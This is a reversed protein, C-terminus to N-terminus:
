VKGVRLPTVVMSAPNFRIKRDGVLSCLVEGAAVTETDALAQDTQFAPPLVSQASITQGDQHRGHGELLAATQRIGPLMNRIWPGLQAVSLDGPNSGLLAFRIREKITAVEQATLVEIGCLKAAEVVKIEFSQLTRDTPKM